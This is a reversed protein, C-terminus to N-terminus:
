GSAIKLNTKTLVRDVDSASLPQSFLFGQIVDCQREVVVDLHSEREVGEMVVRLGLTHAIAAIAAIIEADM